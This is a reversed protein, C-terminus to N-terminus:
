KIFRQFKANVPGGTESLFNPLSELIAEETAPGDYWNEFLEVANTSNITRAGVGKQQCVTVFIQGIPADEEVLVEVVEESVEETVTSTKRVLTTWLSKLWNM